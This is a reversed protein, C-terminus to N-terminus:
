YLETVLAVPQSISSRPEVELVPLLKRKVAVNMDAKSEEM